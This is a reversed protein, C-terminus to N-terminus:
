NKFMSEFENARDRTMSLMCDNAMLRALSGGDPDFYFACNADRYKIWIKQLEILQTVRAPTQKIRLAKYTSNLRKDQEKYEKDNCEIMDQTSLAKDMCIKYYNSYHDFADKEASRASISSMSFVFLIFTLIKKM